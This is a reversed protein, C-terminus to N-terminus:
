VLSLRFQSSIYQLLQLVDVFTIKPTCTACLPDNVFLIKISCLIFRNLLFQEINIYLGVEYAPRSYQFLTPSFVGAMLCFDVNNSKSSTIVLRCIQRCGPMDPVSQLLERVAHMSLNRQM